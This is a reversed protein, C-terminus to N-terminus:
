EKTVKYNSMNGNIDYTAEVNYIAIPNIDSDCDTKSEYIKIIGTILNNNVDYSPSFIRFNEQSLGLLRNSKTIIESLKDIVESLDNIDRETVVITEIANDYKKPTTYMVRYQGITSLNILKQYVGDGIDTMTGNEILTNTSSQYIEYQISLGTAGDGLIDTVIIELYYPTNKLIKSIM